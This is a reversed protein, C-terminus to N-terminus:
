FVAAKSSFHMKELYSLVNSVGIQKLLWCAPGNESKYLAVDLQMPSGTLEGSPNKKLEEVSINQLVSSASYGKELAPGYVLM